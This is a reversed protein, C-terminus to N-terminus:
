VRLFRRIATLSGGVGVLIGVGLFVLAVRDGYSAGVLPVVLVALVLALLVVAKKEMAQQVDQATASPDDFRFTLTQLDEGLSISRHNVPVWAPRGDVGPIGEDLLLNELERSTGDRLAWLRQALTDATSFGPLDEEWMWDVLTQIGALTQGLAHIDRWGLERAIEFKMNDLAGRAEPVMGSANQNQNM